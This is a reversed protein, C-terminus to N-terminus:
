LGVQVGLGLGAGGYVQPGRDDPFGDVYGEAQALFSAKKYKAFVVSLGLAGEIGFRHRIGDGVGMIHGFTDHHMADVPTEHAHIAMVRLHPIVVDFPLAVKTGIGLLMLMREDVAGYGIRGLVDVSVIDIFEFGLHLSGQVNPDQEWTSAGGSVAGEAYFDTAHAEHPCALFLVTAAVFAALAHVVIRRPLNM